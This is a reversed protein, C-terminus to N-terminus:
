VLEYYQYAAKQDLRILYNVKGEQGNTGMNHVTRDRGADQDHYAVATYIINNNNNNYILLRFLYDHYYM